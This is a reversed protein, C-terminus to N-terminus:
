TDNNTGGYVQVTLNPNFQLDAIVNRCLSVADDPIFTAWGTEVTITDGERYAHIGTRSKEPWIGPLLVDPIDTVALQTRPPPKREQSKGGTEGGCAAGLSLTSVAVAAAVVRVSAKQHM